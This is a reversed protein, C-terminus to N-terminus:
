DTHTDTQSKEKKKREDVVHLSELVGLMKKILGWFTAKAFSESEQEKKRKNCSLASALNLHTGFLCTVDILSSPPPLCQIHSVGSADANQQLQM